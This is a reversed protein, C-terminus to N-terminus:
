RLNLTIYRVIAKDGDKNNLTIKLVYVGPKTNLPLNITKSVIRNNNPSVRINFLNDTYATNLLTYELDLNENVSGLNKVTTYVTITEGGNYISKYPLSITKSIDYMHFDVSKHIGSNSSTKDLAKSNLEILRSTSDTCEKNDEIKLKVTYFGPANFQHSISSTSTTETYGDGFIWTYEIPVENSSTTASFIVDSYIFLEDPNVDFNISCDGVFNEDCTDGVGDQDEDAQNRNPVFPCNDRNDPIGDNDSDEDRIVTVLITKQTTGTFPAQENDAATLTVLEQGEFDAPVTLMLVTNDRLRTIIGNESLSVITNDVDRLDDINYIARDIPTNEVATLTWTNPLNFSPNNNGINITSTDSSIVDRGNVNSRTTLKVNNNGLMGSSFSGFLPLTTSFYYDGNAPVPQGNIVISSDVVGSFRMLNVKNNTRLNTIEAEQFIANLIPQNRSNSVHAKVFLNNGRLFNTQQNRFNNDGYVNMNISLLNNNDCADGVNDNDSDLQNSNSNRPCNDRNDPISDRDIDSPGIIVRAEGVPTQLGPIYVKCRVVNSERYVGPTLVSSHENQINGNIDWIHNFMNNARGDVLCTLSDQPTPNNPVISVTAANVIGILFLFLVTVILLQKKMTFTSITM